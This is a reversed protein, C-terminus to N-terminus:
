SLGYPTQLIDFDVAGLAAAARYWREAPLDRTIARVGILQVGDRTARLGLSAARNVARGVAREIGDVDDLGDLRAAVDWVLLRVEALETTHEVLPFSVGQYEALPKGWTTRQMAYAACFELSARALGLLCAALLLRAAGVARHLAIGGALREEEAFVPGDLTVPGSPVETLAIRGTERDPRVSVVGPRSGPYCFAALGDETQGVLLSLDPDAPHAVSCKRGTVRWGRGTRTATTTYESPGRGFDEYLLVSVAAAPDADLVASAAARQGPTGCGTLLLAAQLVPVAAWALAADGYALEEVAVLLTHPEEIGGEILTAPALDEAALKRAPWKPELGTRDVEAALARLGPTGARLRERLRLQRPTLGLDLGQTM